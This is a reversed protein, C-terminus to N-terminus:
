RSATKLLSERRERDMRDQARKRELVERWEKVTLTASGALDSIRRRTKLLRRLVDSFSEGPRKLTVLQKYVDDAVAINRAM